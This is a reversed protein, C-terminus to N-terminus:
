MIILENQLFVKDLHVFDKDLTFLTANLVSATAAIWIDNKGMNRASVGIPLSKKVWKGQSYADIEAYSQIISQVRIPYIIFSQLLQSLLRIRNAGWEWQLALSWLEGETVVSIILDHESLSYKQYLDSRFAQNRLMMVIVNTDLVIYAM